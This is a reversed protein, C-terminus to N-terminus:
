VSPSMRRTWLRASDTFDDLFDFFAHRDELLWWLPLTAIKIIYMLVTLIDCTFKHFILKQNDHLTRHRTQISTGHHSSSFFHYTKSNASETGTYQDYCQQQTQLLMPKSQTPLLFSVKSDGGSWDVPVDAMTSSCSSDESDGCSRDVAVDVTASCSSVESDDRSWDEVIDAM